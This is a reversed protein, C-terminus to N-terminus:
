SYSSLNNYKRRLVKVLGCVLGQPHIQVKKYSESVEIGDVPTEQFRVKTPTKTEFHHQDVINQVQFYFFIFLIPLANFHHMVFLMVLIFIM